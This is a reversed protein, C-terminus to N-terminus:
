SVLAVQETPIIHFISGKSIGLVKQMPICKQRCHGITGRRSIEGVAWDVNILKPVKRTVPTAADNEIPVLKVTSL